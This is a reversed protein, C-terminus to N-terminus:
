RWPTRVEPKGLGDQTEIVMGPEIPTVCTRVNPHGNVMMVCDTCRGICCFVGRNQHLKATRRLVIIGNAMLEAAIPAGRRAKIEKGDVTVSVMDGLDADGLIPHKLVRV